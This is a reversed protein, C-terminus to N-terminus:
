LTVRWSEEIDKNEDEEDAFDKLSIVTMTKGYSGLGIIEETAGVERNGGFWSMLDTTDSDEKHNLINKADMNFEYTRVSFPLPTNKKPWDIGKYEKLAESMFCYKIIKGESVVVAVPAATKQAYRIATATLSVECKQALSKIACLGDPYRGMEKSFMPDPMLLGAAFYDAEREYSDDSVFGGRSEHTTGNSFVHDIHGDLMYHGIEHAVSFRQFGRNPINTAYFIGFDNGCRVLMGSVGPKDVPKAQVTIELMEAIEFPNIPLTCIGKEKLFNEARRVARTLRSNETM